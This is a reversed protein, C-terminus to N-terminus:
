QGYDPTKISYECYYTNTVSTINDALSTLNWGLQTKKNNTNWTDKGM